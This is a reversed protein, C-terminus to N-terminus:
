PQMEWIHNGSHLQTVQTWGRNSTQGHTLQLVIVIGESVHTWPINNTIFTLWKQHWNHETTHSTSSKLLVQTWTSIPQSQCNFSANSGIDVFAIPPISTDQLHRNAYVPTWQQQYCYINHTLWHDLQTLSNAKSELNLRLVWLTIYCRIFSIWHTNSYINKVRATVRPQWWEFTFQRNLPQILSEFCTCWAICETGWEFTNELWQVHPEITSINTWIATWIGKGSSHSSVCLMSGMSSWVVLLQLGRCSLSVFKSMQRCQHQQLKNKTDFMWGDVGQCRSNTSQVESESDCHCLWRWTDEELTCGAAKLHTNVHTQSTWHTETTPKM